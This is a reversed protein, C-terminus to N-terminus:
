QMHHCCRHQQCTGMRLRVTEAARQKAMETLLEKPLLLTPQNLSLTQPQKSRQQMPQKYCPREEQAYTSSQTHINRQTHTRTHTSSTHKHKAQAYSHRSRPKSAHIQAIARVKLLCLNLCVNLAGAVQQERGQKSHCCVKCFVKFVGQALVSRPLRETGRGGAAGLASSTAAATAMAEDFRCAM